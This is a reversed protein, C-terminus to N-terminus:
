CLYVCLGQNVTGFLEKMLDSTLFNQAVFNIQESQTLSMSFQFPRTFSYKIEQLSELM